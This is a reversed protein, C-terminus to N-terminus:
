FLNSSLSSLSSSSSLIFLSSLLLEMKSRVVVSIRFDNEDIEIDRIVSDSVIWVSLRSEM